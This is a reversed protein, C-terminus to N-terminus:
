CTIIWKVIDNDLNSSLLALLLVTCVDGEGSPQFRGAAALKVRFSGRLRVAVVSWSCAGPQFVAMSGFGEDAVFLFNLYSYLIKM